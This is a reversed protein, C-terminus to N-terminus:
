SLKQPPTPPEPPTPFELILGTGAQTDVLYRVGKVDAPNGPGEVWIGEINPGVTGDEIRYEPVAPNSYGSVFNPNADSSFEGVISGNGYQVAISGKQDDVDMAKSADFTQLTQLEKQARATFQTVEEPRMPRGESSLDVGLLREYVDPVGASFLNATVNQRISLAKEERPSRAFTPNLPPLAAIM